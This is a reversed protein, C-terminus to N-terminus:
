EPWILLKLKDISNVRRQWEPILVQTNLDSYRHLLMLLMLRTKIENSVNSYPIGYGEFLATILEIKGECSFVSPGLLDYESFGIMADGFDIMASINWQNNTKTVLLNFPTYEGTLVVPNFQKPLLHLNGNVYEKLEQLLWDPADLRKHREYCKEIMETIFAGWQPPLDSLEDAGLSHVQSMIKGIQFLLSAKETLELSEWIREMTVGPLKTLIVYTWSDDREGWAILEPVPIHIKNNIHKLVRYESEWQHRHFPPFIKIIYKDAVSAILNSGDTFAQFDHFPLEYKICLDEAANKWLEPQLRYSKDFYGPDLNDPFKM